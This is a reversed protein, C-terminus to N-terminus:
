GAQAGVLRNVLDLIQKRTQKLDGSNDIVKDALTSKKEQSWQSDFRRELEAESFHDRERLRAKLVSPDTIVAWTEDYEDQLHAEFLLPVLCAVLNVSPNKALQEIKQRSIIRVRPHLIEELVARKQRDAFVIRGLAKRDITRTSSDSSQSVVEKGFRDVILNQVESDTALLNHVILDSDIVPIGLETIIKGVASKGSGITGTIGITTLGPHLKGM